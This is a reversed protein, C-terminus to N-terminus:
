PRTVHIDDSDECGSGEKRGGEGEGIGHHKDGSDDSQMGGFILYNVELLADQGDLGVGDVPPHDDHLCDAVEGDDGVDTGNTRHLRYSRCM